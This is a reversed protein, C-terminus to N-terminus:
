YHSHSNIVMVQSEHLDSGSLLCLLWPNASRSNFSQWAECTRSIQTCHCHSVSFCLDVSCRAPRAPRPGQPETWCPGVVAVIKQAAAFNTVSESVVQPLMKQDMPDMPDMERRSRRQRNRKSPRWPVFGSSRWIGCTDVHWCLWCLIRLSNVQHLIICFSASHHLQVTHLFSCCDFLLMINKESYFLILVDDRCELASFLVLPPHSFHYWSYLPDPNLDGQPHWILFCGTSWIAVPLFPFKM